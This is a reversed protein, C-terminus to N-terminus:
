YSRNVHGLPSRNLEEKFFRWQPLFKDMFAVFRDNHHRELLHVMEHVVIYEICHEPKKALELNLWIRKAERTCTGWKTRMKKIGSENVNVKLAKEYRAIIDPIIDKLRQRYWEDMIEQRKKLNSNPRLHLEITEHKLVVKPSSDNEIVKLLYRKGLFYHSERTIYDRPSEREQSRFKSQQKKIWNLKSIAFVRVTDLDMHLPASIHVRGTPPYVSLHVNKIDKHIVDLFIDGLEIQQIKTTMKSSLSQFSGNM